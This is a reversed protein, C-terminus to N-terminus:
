KGKSSIAKMVATPVNDYRLWVGDGVGQCLGEDLQFLATDAHKIGFKIDSGDEWADLRYEVPPSGSCLLLARDIVIPLRLKAPVYLYRKEQDHFVPARGFGRAVYGMAVWRSWQEDLAFSAGQRSIFMNRYWGKRRVDEFKYLVAEEGGEPPSPHGSKIDMYRIALPDFRRLGMFQISESLEKTEALMASRVDRETAAWNAIALGQMPLVGLGIPDMRQKLLNATVKSRLRLVPLTGEESLGFDNKLIEWALSEECLSGWQGLNLTGLLGLADWGDVKLPMLYAKAPVSHVYEIGGDKGRELEVYGRGWLDLLVKWPAQISGARALFRDLKSKARGYSYGGARALSDLFLVAPNNRVEEFTVPKGVDLRSRSSAVVENGRGREHARVLHEPLGGRLGEAGKVIRGFRDMCTDGDEAAASAAARSRVSLSCSGREKGPGDLVVFKFEGGEEFAPPLGYRRTVVANVRRGSPRARTIPIYSDQELELDDRGVVGVRWESPGRYVVNPLDYRLYEGEDKSGGQLVLLRVRRGSPEVIARQEDTLRECAEVYYMAWGSPLGEMEDPAYRSADPCASIFMAHSEDSVDPFLVVAAGYEPWGSDWLEYSEDGNETLVRAKWARDVSFSGRLTELTWSDQMLFSKSEEVSLLLAWGGLPHRRMTVSTPMAKEGSEGLIQSDEVDALDIAEDEIGIIVRWPLSEVPGLTLGFRVGSRREARKGIRSRSPEGPDIEPGKWEGHVDALRAELVDRYDHDFAAQRLVRSVGSNEARIRELVDKLRTTAKGRGVELGLREFMERLVLIDRASIMVQSKALGVFQHAGLRRFTFKGYRGGTYKTWRELDAWAFETRSMQSSSWNPPLELDKRLRAYYGDVDAVAAGRALAALYPLYTPASNEIAGGPMFECNHKGPDTYGLARSVSRKRREVLEQLRSELTPPKQRWKWDPGAKVAELFGEDGGLGEGIDDLVDPSTGIFVERGIPGPWFFRELLRLNWAEFANIDM